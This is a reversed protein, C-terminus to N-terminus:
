SCRVSDWYITSCMCSLDLNDASDICHTMVTNLFVMIGKLMFKVFGIFLHWLDLNVKSREALIGSSPNGDIYKNM